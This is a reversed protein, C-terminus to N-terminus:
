LSPRRLNNPPTQIVILFICSGAGSSWAILDNCSAISVSSSMISVICLLECVRLPQNSGPFSIPQISSFLQFELAEIRSHSAQLTDLCFLLHIRYKSFQIRQMHFVLLSSYFLNNRSIRRLLYIVFLGCLYCYIWYHDLWNLFM